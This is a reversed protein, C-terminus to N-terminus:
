SSFLFVSFPFFFSNKRIEEDSSVVSSFCSSVNLFAFCAVSSKSSFYLFKFSLRSFSLHPFAEEIESSGREIGTPHSASPVSSLLIKVALLGPVGVAQPGRRLLSMSVPQLLNHCMGEM